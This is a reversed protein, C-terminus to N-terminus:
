RNEQINVIFVGEKMADTDFGISKTWTDVGDKELQDRIELMLNNMFVQLKIDAKAAKALLEDLVVRDKALKDCAQAFKGPVLARTGKSDAVIQKWDRKENATM